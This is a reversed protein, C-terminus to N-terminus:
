GQEKTGLARQLPRAPRPDALEPVYALQETAAATFGNVRERQRQDLADWRPLTGDPRRLRRLERRLTALAADARQLVRPNSRAVLGRLSGLVVDTGQVNADLAVLAAGSWPSAQGALQLHLSDELVEHTRLAYDLPDIEIRGVRERLRRVDGALRVAFPRADRTSRRAWLALEIRHLGVFDPAHIGGALGAPRGNIAADLDGFAGYAAGITEYRADAALWARRAGALEGRATAARLRDVDALMATLARRVHHGYTAIPVRFDAPRAHPVTGSLIVRSEVKAAPPNKAPRVGGSGCGAVTVSGACVAALVAAATATPRARIRHAGM